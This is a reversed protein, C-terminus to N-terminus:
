RRVFRMRRQLCTLASDCAFPPAPRVTLSGLKARSVPLTRSLSLHLPASGGATAVPACPRLQGGPVAGCAAGVFAALAAAAGGEPTLPVFVHVPFFGEALEFSRVRGEHPDRQADASGGATHLARRLAQHRPLRAAPCAGFARLFADPPPLVVRPPPPTLCRRSRKAARADDEEGSGSDSESGSSDSGYAQLAQMRPPPPRV